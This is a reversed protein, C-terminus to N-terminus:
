DVARKLLEELGNEFFPPIGQNILEANKENRTSCITKIGRDAFCAATVLGVFGTGVVSVRYEAM